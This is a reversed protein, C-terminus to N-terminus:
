ASLTGVGLARLDEAVSEPEDRLEAAGCRLIVRTPTTLKRQRKMDEDYHEVDAHFGGDVELVVVRGDRLHWECDTFRLRGSRDRRTRQRTTPLPLGTRRCMRRVDIEALSQAGGEMDLLARRFLRARRLPRLREIWRRLDDPTTLRQQVVAALAGQATRPSRDHAAFLLIAPEIQCVPLRGMGRVSRARLDNLPRRTRFFRIGPIPEFSWEDPVLITADPREWNRLGYVKAATLGGVLAGNGAHLVGLWMQQLETLEGTTTSLV